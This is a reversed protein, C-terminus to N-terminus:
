IYLKTAAILVLDCALPTYMELTGGVSSLISSPIFSNKVEPRAKTTVGAM